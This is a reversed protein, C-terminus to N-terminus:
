PPAGSGGRGTAAPRGQQRLVTLLRERGAVARDRERRAAAIRFSLALAWGTSVAILSAAAFLPWRHRRVVKGLRYFASGRTALVPKGSLFRRLDDALAAVSAYREGPEFRLAKAVINDLDGAVRRATQGATSDGFHGRQGPLAALSRALVRSPRAPPLALRDLLDGQALNPFAAPLEGTLLLFLLVGLAYVDTSPTIPRGAIQEPSAYGPTMPRQSTRTRELEFPISSPDLVKAIGFDLLKPHGDEDVLINGPKLDRHVVLHRHAYAVADCVELFLDLRAELGLQREECFRDIPRGKIYELVFYPRGSETTGGEYLRAIGPHEFRALIQRESLFRQHVIPSHLGSAILKIAVQHEFERDAREALYVAGMGGRGILEVLRYAGIQRPEGEPQEAGAAPAAAGLAELVKRVPWALRPEHRHLNELWADRLPRDLELAVEVLRSIRQWPASPAGQAVLRTAADTPQDMM